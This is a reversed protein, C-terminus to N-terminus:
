PSELGFDRSPDIESLSDVVLDAAALRRRDHTGALGISRM